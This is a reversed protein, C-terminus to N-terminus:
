LLEEPALSGLLGSVFHRWWGALPEGDYRVPRGDVEGRWLLASAANGPEALEVRFAQDPSVAEEGSALLHFGSLGPTEALPAAFNRGLSTEEPQAFAHSPVRPVDSRLSACGSVLGIALLALLRRWAM